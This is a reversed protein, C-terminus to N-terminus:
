NVNETTAPEVRLDDFWIEGSIQQEAPIRAALELWLVQAKCDSGTPIRFAVDFPRWLITGQFRDTEVIKHKDGGVCSLTWQLGRQNDLNAAKVEGLLRYTGPELLLVQSVHRFPVRTNYFEVRLARDNDGSTVVDAQAGRVRQINWDFPMGTVPFEFGGNYVAGAGTRNEAPLWQIWIDYARDAGGRDILTQLFPRLEDATPPTPGAMLNSFFDSLNAPEHHGAPLMALFSSRWPPDGQLAAILAQQGQPHSTWDVLVPFLTEGFAPWIRLLVDIHRSAELYDGNLLRYDALWIQTKLDRLSRAAAMRMLAAARDDDGNAEAILAFVRLPAASLPGSIMARRALDALEPQQSPDTALPLQQEAMQRLGEAHESDLALALDPRSFVYFDAVASAIINWALWLGITAMGIAALATLGIHHQLRQSSPVSGNAETSVGDSGTRPSTSLL